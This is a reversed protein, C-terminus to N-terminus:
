KKIGDYVRKAKSKIQKDTSVEMIKELAKKAADKIPKRRNGSLRYAISIAASAAENKLEPDEIFSMVFNLAEANHIKSVQSLVLKKEAKVSSISFAKKFLEIKVQTNRGGNLPITRVIGKYALTKHDQNSLNQYAKILYSVVNGNNSGALAAIAAKKVGDSKDGDTIIDYLVSFANDSGIKGLVKLLSAKTQSNTFSNFAKVIPKVDAKNSVAIGAACKEAEFRLYDNKLDVLLKVAVGLDNAKGVMALSRFAQVSINSDSSYTYKALLGVTGAIKRQGIAMIYEVVVKNNSTVKPLGVINEDVGDGKLGYLCERAVQQVKGGTASAKRALVSVAKVGGVKKLAKMAVILVKEDSSNVSKFAASSIAPVGMEAGLSLLKFQAAPGVKDFCGFIGAVVKASKINAIASIAADVVIAEDSKLGAVITEGARDGLSYAMGKLAAAKVPSTVAGDHISKYVDFKWSGSPAKYVSEIMAQQVVAKLAPDAKELVASLKRGAQGTAINNLAAISAVVVKKDSSLALGGIADVSKKSKLTGLVNIVGVQVDGKATKLENVLLSEVSSGGIREMAMLAMAATKPDKLMGALGWASQSTGILGLQKCIFQKGAITLDTLLLRNMEVEIALLKAPSGSADKIANEVAILPKRSQGYKFNKVADVLGRVDPWSSVKEGLALPTTDAKLDGIAFQIGDLYHKLITTNWFIEHNHGFACYFVRGKGFDRIWSIPVDPHTKKGGLPKLNVEDTMDLGVLVRANERLKIQKTLYIEDSIKFSKGNFAAAVPSTPDEIKVAWTGRAGWPHGRFTGGMMEAAEPWDYFNDTAGHIGAIGKGGKVFDMIAKRQSKDFTLRTTNNFIIADYQKLNGATFVSKDVSVDSTFAGTKQGLIEIAKSGYPVSSHPFGQCLNFVLVKRPKAPEVSAPPAAAKMKAVEADKVAFACGVIGIMCVCVIIKKLLSGM